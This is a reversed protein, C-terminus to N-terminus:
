ALDHSAKSPERTFLQDSSSLHLQECARQELRANLDLPLPWPTPTYGALRALAMRGAALDLFALLTRWYEDDVLEVRVIDKDLAAKREARLQSFRRLSGSVRRFESETLRTALLRRDQMETSLPLDLDTTWWERVSLSRHAAELAAAIDSHQLRAAARAADQADQRAQRRRVGELVVQGSLTLGGGVLVGILSADAVAQM